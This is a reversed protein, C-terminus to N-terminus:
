HTIWGCVSMGAEENESAAPESVVYVDVTWKGTPGGDVVAPVYTLGDTDYTMHQLGFTSDPPLIVQWESQFAEPSIEQHAEVCMRQYAADYDGASVDTLFATVTTQAKDNMERDLWSFLGTLGFISGVGCIALALVGVVITVALRTNNRDKPPALFPVRVGPGRPPPPIPQPSLPVGGTTPGLSSGVPPFPPPSGPYPPPQSGMSSM